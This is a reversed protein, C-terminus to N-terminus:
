EHTSSDKPDIIPQETINVSPLNNDPNHFFRMESADPIIDEVGAAKGFQQLISSYTPYVVTEFRDVWDMYRSHLDLCQMHDTDNKPEGFRGTHRSQIDSLETAMVKCDSALTNARSILLQKDDVHAVADKNRLLGSVTTPLTAYDRLSEYVKELADWAGSRSSKRDQPIAQKHHKGKGM